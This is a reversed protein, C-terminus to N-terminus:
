AIEIQSLGRLVLLAGGGCMIGLVAACAPDILGNWSTDKIRRLTMVIFIPALVISAFWVWALGGGAGAISLLSLWFYAAVLSFLWGVIAVPLGILKVFVALALPPKALAQMAETATTPAM